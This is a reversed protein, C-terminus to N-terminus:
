SRRRRGRLLSGEAAGSPGSSPGARSSATSRNRALDANQARKAPSSGSTGSDTSMAPSSGGLSSSSSEPNMFTRCDRSKGVPVIGFTEMNRISGIIYLKEESGSALALSRYFGQEGFLQDPEIAAIFLKNPDRSPENHFSHVRITQLQRTEGHHNDAYYFTSSGDSWNMLALMWRLQGDRAKHQLLWLGLMNDKAPNM